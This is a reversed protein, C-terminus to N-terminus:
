LPLNGLFGFSPIGLFVGRSTVRWRDVVEIVVSRWLHGERVGRTMCDGFPNSFHKLEGKRDSSFLRTFIPCQLPSGRTVVQCAVNAGRPM